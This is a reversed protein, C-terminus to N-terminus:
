ISDTSMWRLFETETKPSVRESEVKAAATRTNTQKNTQKNTQTPLHGSMEAVVEHTSM